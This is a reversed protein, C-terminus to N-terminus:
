EGKNAVAKVLELVKAAIIVAETTNIDKAQKYAEGLGMFGTVVVNYNKALEVLHKIDDTNLDGDGVIKHAAVGIPKLGDIFELIENVPLKEPTAEVVEDVIKDMEEGNNNEDESM